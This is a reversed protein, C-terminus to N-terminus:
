KSYIKTTKSTNNQKNNVKSISIKIYENNNKYFYIHIITLNNNNM